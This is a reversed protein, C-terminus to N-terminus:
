LPFIKCLVSLTLSRWRDRADVSNEASPLVVSSNIARTANSLPVKPVVVGSSSTLLIASMQPPFPRSLMFMMGACATLATSHRTTPHYM